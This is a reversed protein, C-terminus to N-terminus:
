AVRFATSRFRMPISTEADQGAARVPFFLGMRPAASVCSVGRFFCLSFEIACERKRARSRAGFKFADVRGSAFPTRKPSPDYRGYRRAVCIIARSGYLSIACCSSIIGGVSYSAHIVVGSQGHQRGWEGPALATLEDTHCLVSFIM